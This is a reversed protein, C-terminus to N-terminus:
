EAKAAQAARKRHEAWRKKQALAIRRRAAPSLVRKTGAAKKEAPAAGPVTVRQRKLLAQLEHIKNEIKQKELQYGVLAMQLTTIDESRGRAMFKVKWVIDNLHTLIFSERLQIDHFDDKLTYLFGADVHIVNSSTCNM